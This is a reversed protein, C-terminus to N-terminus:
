LPYDVTTFGTFPFLGYTLKTNNQIWVAHLFNNHKFLQLAHCSGPSTALSFTHFLHTCIVDPIPAVDLELPFPDVRVRMKLSFRQSHKGLSTLVM